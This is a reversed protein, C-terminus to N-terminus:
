YQHNRKKKFLTDNTSTDFSPEVFNLLVGFKQESLIFVLAPPIQGNETVARRSSNRYIPLLATIQDGLM